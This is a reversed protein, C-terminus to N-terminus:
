LIGVGKDEAPREGRKWADCIAGVAATIADIDGYISQLGARPYPASEDCVFTLQSEDADDANITVMVRGAMTYTLMKVAGVKMSFGRFRAAENTKQFGGQIYVIREWRKIIGGIEESMAITFPAKHKGKQQAKLIKELWGDFTPYEREESMFWEDTMGGVM